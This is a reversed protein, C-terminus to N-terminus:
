YSQQDLKVMCAEPCIYLYINRIKLSMYYSPHSSGWMIHDCAHDSCFITLCPIM